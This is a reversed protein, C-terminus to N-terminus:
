RIVNTSEKMTQHDLLQTLGAFTQAQQWDLLGVLAGLAMTPIQAIDGLVTVLLARIHDDDVDREILNL